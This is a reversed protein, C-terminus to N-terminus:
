TESVKIDRKGGFILLIKFCFQLLALNLFIFLIFLNHWVISIAIITKRGM